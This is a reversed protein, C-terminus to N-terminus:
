QQPDAVLDGGTLQDAGERKTMQRCGKHGGARHAGADTIIFFRANALLICRTFETTICQLLHLILSIM